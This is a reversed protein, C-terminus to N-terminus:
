KKPGGQVGSPFKASVGILNKRESTSHLVAIYVVDYQHIFSCGIRQSGASNRM